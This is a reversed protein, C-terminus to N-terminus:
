TWTECAQVWLMWVIGVLNAYLWLCVAFTLM